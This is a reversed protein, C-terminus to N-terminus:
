IKSVKDDGDETNGLTSEILDKDVKGDDDLKMM